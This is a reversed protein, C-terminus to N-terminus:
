RVCRTQSHVQSMETVIRGEHKHSQLPYLRAGTLQRRGNRGRAAGPLSQDEHPPANGATDKANTSNAVKAPTRLFAYTM